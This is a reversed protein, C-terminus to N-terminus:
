RSIRAGVSQVMRARINRHIDAALGLQVLDRSEPVLEIGLMRDGSAAIRHALSNVDPTFVAITRRARSISVYWEKGHTAASVGADALIVADVTKGQAGYSTVAYGPQVIRHERGLVQNQKGDSVTLSGDPSINTVTVHTGNVLKHGDLSTGTARIQLVSGIGIPIEQRDFLEWRDAYKLSIHGQQGGPFLVSVRDATRATVTVVDGREFRGYGRNFRLVTGPEYPDAVTKEAAHVNRPAFVEIPRPDRVVGRAVLRQTIADNLAAVVQRTQSVALVDLGAAHLRDFEAAAPAIVDTDRTDHVCGATALQVLASQPQGEAAAEVARRYELIQRREAPNQGRRPDQRRISKIEATTVQAFSELSRMADSAEVAAHQRTDGSLIVRCRNRRALQLLSEMQRGGVQGAEDVLLTAGAPVDSTQLLRALTVAPIGDDTLRRAQQAQPSAVRVPQGARELQAVLERLAFSKGTGAGGRFLSIGDRSQLLKAVASRQEADLATATLDPSAIFPRFQGRQKQAQEVIGWERRLGEVSTIREGNREGAIGARQAAAALDPMSADTGLVRRAAAALLEHLHVVSKREFVFAKAWAIAGAYDPKPLSMRPARPRLRALADREDSTLESRWKTQLTQRNAGRIKRKREERAIRNRLTHRDAGANERKGAEEALRQEIGLRRKSFRAIVADSVGAIEWSKGKPRIEYGLRVLERALETHYVAQAYPLAKFMDHTQLAKWEQEVADWTANFIVAHTHLLPDQERSTDHEFLAAVVSGTRRDSCEGAKRVRTGAYKELAALSTKMAKRHLEFIRDDGLLGVVSVSKPPRYVFDYFIRRNATEKGASMRTTNRRLTLNDGTFPHRGECLALFEKEGVPGNLGLREAAEGFWEGAVATEETYYDGVKLHERFYRRANGLSTQATPTIM